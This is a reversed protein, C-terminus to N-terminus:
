LLNMHVEQVKRQLFNVLKLPINHVHVWANSLEIEHAESKIYNDKKSM